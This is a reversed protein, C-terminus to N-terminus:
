LTYPVRQRFKVDNRSFSLHHMVDNICTTYLLSHLGGNRIIIKDDVDPAQIPSVLTIVPEELCIFRATNGLVQHHNAIALDVFGLHKGDCETDRLPYNEHTLLQIGVWVDIM